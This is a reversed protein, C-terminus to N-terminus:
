SRDAQERKVPNNFWGKCDILEGDADFIEVMAIENGNCSRYEKRAEKITAFTEVEGPELDGESYGWTKVTFTEAQILPECLTLNEDAELADMIGNLFVQLPVNEPDAALIEAPTPLAAQEAQLAKLETITKPYTNTM